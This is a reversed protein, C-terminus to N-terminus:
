HGGALQWGYQKQVWHAHIVRFGNRSPNPKGDDSGRDCDLCYYRCHIATHHPGLIDYSGDLHPDNILGKWGINTRPKEFYVRMVIELDDELEKRLAVLKQGYEYAAEIDHVSCPGVIVLLRRDEDRMINWIRDRTSAVLTSAPPTIPLEDHLLAPSILPRTELVHLDSTKPM